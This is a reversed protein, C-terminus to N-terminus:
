GYEPGDAEAEAARVLLEIVAQRLDMNMKYAYERVTIGASGLEDMDIQIFRSADRLMEAM